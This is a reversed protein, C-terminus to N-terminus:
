KRRTPTRKRKAQAQEAQALQILTEPTLDELRPRKPITRRQYPSLQLYARTDRDWQVFADDNLIARDPAKLPRGKRHLELQGTIPTTKLLGERTAQILRRYYGVQQAPELQSLQESLRLINTM